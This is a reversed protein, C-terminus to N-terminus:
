TQSTSNDCRDPMSGTGNGAAALANSIDTAAQRSAHTSSSRSNLYSIVDAARAQQAEDLATRGFRDVASVNAHGQEVLLVMQLVGPLLLVLLLSVSSTM